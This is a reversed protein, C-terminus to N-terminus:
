YGCKEKRLQLAKEAVEDYHWQRARIYAAQVAKCSIACDCHDGGRCAAVVPFKESEPLLFAGDGCQQHLQHRETGRRPSEVAWGAISHPRSQDANRSAYDTIKDMLYPPLNSQVSQQYVTSLPVPQAVPMQMTQAFSNQPAAVPTPALPVYVYPKPVYDSSTNSNM